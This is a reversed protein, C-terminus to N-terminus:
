DDDGAGVDLTWAQQELDAALGALEAAITRLAAALDVDDALEDVIGDVAAALRDLQEGAVPPRAPPTADDAATM